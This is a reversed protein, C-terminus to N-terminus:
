MVVGALYSLQTGKRESPPAFELVITDTPAFLKPKEKKDLCVSDMAAM